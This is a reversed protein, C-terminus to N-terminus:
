ARGAGAPDLRPDRLLEGIAMTEVLDAGRAAMALALEPTDAEYLMWQWPGPWLSGPDAPVKLHNCVLYAPALTEARRRSEDDWQALVWGVEHTQTVQAAREVADGDYSIVVCRDLVPTLTQLVLEVVPEVGFHQLSERKIEVFARAAPREGLLTVIETLTAIPEDGVLRIARLAELDLECVVGDMGATRRLDADHMLVPVRDASLQVDFEVWVAGAQLAAEVAVLTNEPYRRAYGRHAVLVPRM